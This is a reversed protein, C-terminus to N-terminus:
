CLQPAWALVPQKAIHPMRFGAHGGGHIGFRGTIIAIVRVAAHLLRTWRARRNTPSGTRRIFFCGAAVTAASYKHKAVSVRFAPLQIIQSCVHIIDKANNSGLGKM